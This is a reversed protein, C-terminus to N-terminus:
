AFNTLNWLDFDEKKSVHIHLNNYINSNSTIADVPKYIVILCFM